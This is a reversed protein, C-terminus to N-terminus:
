TMGLATLSALRRKQAIDSHLALIYTAFCMLLRKQATLETEIEKLLDGTFQDALDPLSVLEFAPIVLRMLKALPKERIKFLVDDTAAEKPRSRFAAATDPTSKKPRWDLLANHAYVSIDPLMEPVSSRIGSFTRNWVGDELPDLAVSTYLKRTSDDLIDFLYEKVTLDLAATAAARDDVQLPRTASTGKVLSRFDEQSLRKLAERIKSLALASAHSSEAGSAGGEPEVDDEDDERALM